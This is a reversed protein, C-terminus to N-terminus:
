RISILEVGGESLVTVYAHGGELATTWLIGPGKDHHIPHGAGRRDLRTAMVQDHAGGGRVYIM